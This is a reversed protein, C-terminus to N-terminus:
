NQLQAREFNWPCFAFNLTEAYQLTWVIFNFLILTRFNDTKAQFHVKQTLIPWLMLMKKEPSIYSLVCYLSHSCINFSYVKHTIIWDWIKPMMKAAFKTLMLLEVTRFLLLTKVFDCNTLWSTSPALSQILQLSYISLLCPSGM